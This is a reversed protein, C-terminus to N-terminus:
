SLLTLKLVTLIEIFDKPLFVKGSCVCCNGTNLSYYKMDYNVFKKTYMFDSDTLGDILLCVFENYLYMTTSYVFYCTMNEIRMNIKYFVFNPVDIVEPM